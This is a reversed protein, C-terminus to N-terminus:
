PCGMTEKWFSGNRQGSRSPRGADVSRNVPRRAGLSVTKSFLAGLLFVIRSRIGISIIVPVLFKLAAKLGTPGDQACPRSAAMHFGLSRGLVVLVRARPGEGRILFYCVTYYAAQGSFLTIFASSLSLVYPALALFSMVQSV